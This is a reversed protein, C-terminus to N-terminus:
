LSAAKAAELLSRITNFGEVQKDPDAGLLEGSAVTPFTGTVGNITIHIITDDLNSDVVVHSNGVRADTTIRTIM